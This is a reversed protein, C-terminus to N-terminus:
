LSRPVVDPHIPRWPRVSAEEYWRKLWAHLAAKKQGDALAQPGGHYRAMMTCFKWRERMEVAGLTIFIFLAVLVPLLKLWGRSGLLSNGQSQWLTSRLSSAVRLALSGGVIAAALMYAPDIYPSWHSESVIADAFKLFGYYGALFAADSLGIVVLSIAASKVFLRRKESRSTTLGSARRVALLESYRKYTLCAACSVVIAIANGLAGEVHTVVACCIAVIAIAVMVVWAKLRMSHRQM